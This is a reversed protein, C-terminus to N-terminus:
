RCTIQCRSSTVFVACISCVAGAGAMSATVQAYGLLTKIYAHRLRETRQEIAQKRTLTPAMVQM